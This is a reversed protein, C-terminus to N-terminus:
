KMKISKYFYIGISGFILILCFIISFEGLGDQNGIATQITVFTMYCFLAAIITNLIRIFRTALKYQRRANEETIKVLYNFIHPFRNLINMGAYMIIGIAPLIWITIKGSYGDPTGDFAFHSPILGPLRDFYYIPMTFLLIIAIVGILEIAWDIPEPEIKIRPQAAKRKMTIFESTQFQILYLTIM